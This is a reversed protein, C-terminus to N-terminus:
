YVPEALIIGWSYFGLDVSKFQVERTLFSIGCKNWVFLGGGEGPLLFLGTVIATVPSKPPSLRSRVASRKFAM